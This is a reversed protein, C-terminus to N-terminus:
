ERPNSELRRITGTIRVIGYVLLPVLVLLVGLMLDAWWRDAYHLVPLVALVVPLGPVLMYTLQRRYRQVRSRNDTYLEDRATGSAPRRFYMWGGMRGIFEWGADRYLQLYADFDGDTGARYDLRYVMDAPARRVFTYVVWAVRQLFWGERAMRELWQEEAGEQWAFFVRVCRRVQGEDTRM